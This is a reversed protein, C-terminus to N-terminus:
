RCKSTQSSCVHTVGLDQCSSEDTDMADRYISSIGHVPIHMCVYLYKCRRNAVGERCLLRSATTAHYWWGAGHRGSMAM